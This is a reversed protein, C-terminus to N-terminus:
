VDLKYFIGTLKMGFPESHFITFSNYNFDDWGAMSSIEFSGTRPTPPDGPIVQNLKTLVIPFQRNGQDIFGGVTDAFVFTVFRIHKTDTLNSSKPNGTLSISLPMPIIEVNIPFGYQAETVPVVAGHAEFNLTGAVVEDNFGFGNGQMYIEQANFRPLAAIATLEPAPVPTTPTPYLGICDMEADFSLQEIMLTTQLEYPTIQASFGPNSFTIANEDALADEQSLYVKFVKSSTILPDTSYGVAWYNTNVLVQPSSTPLTGFSFTIATYADVPFEYTNNTLTDATFATLNYPGIAVGLERETVFWARGDFSSTVWRFYALGYTQELVAPTFGSVNEAILSQYIAMTGDANIIFMYRSGARQLDVYGAEDIPTRILQENAISLINSTYANNFGDWLLGHADNGSLVVIQNDIGRPQVNQAPTSDQLSLSFNKPTIATEVSLPTSYVGSNTHITLSRYPVIFQIFNVTDSSPFWSIASTDDQEIDNFDNFDNIVSLWLGNTLSDSNAFIARNQFTSCNRPWGRLDSWAPEAIFAQTGPIPDTTSFAQIIDVQIVTPSTLATIRAIGSGAVFVGGILSATFVYTGATRTITKNYGIQISGPTFTSTDYGCTFDFVPYNKFVVDALTWTNLIVVNALTGASSITFYDTNAAAAEATSFIRITTTTTVARVFYTKNLHIQPTTAPLTTTATFRAPWFGNIVVPTTITLTSSTFGTIANAADASRKLDKPKYIGTTVRFINELITHDILQVEDAQIGTSAVSAVIQGELYIDIADAKFVILYVCENLYQFSKFYIQRYNTVGSIISLFVTGFRKGASGQPFCIVNKARKLGQYYAQLTVRSYLLPSLEGKAFFDQSWLVDTM